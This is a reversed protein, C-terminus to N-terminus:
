NQLLLWITEKTTKLDVLNEKNFGTLCKGGDPSCRLPGPVIEDILIEEQGGTVQVLKYSGQLEDLLGGRKASPLVVTTSSLWQIEPFFWESYNSVAPMTWNSIVKDDRDFITYLANEEEGLQVTLLSDKYTDFYLIKELTSHERNGTKRDYILLNGGDLPHNLEDITAVKDTGLWKPFPNELPILDPEEEKGNYLFVDFSWDEYFATLLVLTPDLDNWEIALESSAITIEDLVTGEVSIIKVKASSADSTTHLLLTKKSPHILVDVIIAAEEFLTDIEGTAVDFTKVFYVSDEKEVFVIKTDTLWDAVFHFNESNVSFTKIIEETEEVLSNPNEGTTENVTDGAKQTCGVLIFVLLGFVGIIQKM